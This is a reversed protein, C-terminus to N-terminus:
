AVKHPLCSIHGHQLHLHQLLKIALVFALIAEFVLTLSLVLADHVRTYLKIDFGLSWLFQTVFCFCAVVFFTLFCIEYCMFFFFFNRSLLLLFSFTLCTGWHHLFAFLMGKYLFSRLCLCSFYLFDVKAFEFESLTLSTQVVTQFYFIVNLASFCFFPPEGDGKQGELRFATVRRNSCGADSGCHLSFHCCTWRLRRIGM